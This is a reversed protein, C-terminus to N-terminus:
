KKKKLIKKLAPLFTPQGEEPKIDKKPISIDRNKKALYSKTLHKKEKKM